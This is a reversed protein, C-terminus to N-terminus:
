RQNGMMTCRLPDVLEEVLEDVQQVPRNWRLPSTDARTPAGPAHEQGGGLLMDHKIMGGRPKTRNGLTM